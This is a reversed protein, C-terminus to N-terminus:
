GPFGNRLNGKGSEGSNHLPVPVFAATSSTLGGQAWPISHLTSVADSNSLLSVVATATGTSLETETRSSKFYHQKDAECIRVSTQLSAQPIESPHFWLFEKSNFLEKAIVWFSHLEISILDKRYRYIM